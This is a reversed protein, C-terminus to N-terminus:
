HDLVEALLATVQDRTVTGAYPFLVIALGAGLGAGVAQAVAFAPVSGPAIGAFTDSWARALTVAPNAFSTSSTFFYAGGIWAPILLPGLHGRGTRTLAGITLLLGATAVVEGVWRGVGSRTHQSAQYSPLDFMLNAVGRRGARGRGPRGRVRRGRQPRLDRRCVEVLTVAPNLHAGSVPGLAAILVALVAVTATANVLLQLLVDQSLRSAMIGSGVVAAVLSATGVAEAAVRRASVPVGTMSM